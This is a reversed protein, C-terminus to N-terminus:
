PFDVRLTGGAVIDVPHELTTESNLWAKLVYHGPPVNNLRYHGDAETLVFHPTELVLILGRMHEHIECRVTVLGPQDFVEAPVPQENPRYRGLDFRKPRSYSYVNHYIRDLNPFEVRTGVQVPLLGPVFAMDKQLLQVTPMTAPPPFKGELYVVAMPPDTAMVGNVSVIQYRETVMPANESKPLHVRGEIAAPQAAARGGLWLFAIVLFTPIKM